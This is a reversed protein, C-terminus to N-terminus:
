QLMQVSLGISFLPGYLYFLQFVPCSLTTMGCGCRVLYVERVAWPVDVLIFTVPAAAAVFVVRRLPWSM